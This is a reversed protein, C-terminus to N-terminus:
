LLFFFIQFDISNQHKHELTFRIKSLGKWDNSNKTYRKKVYSISRYQDTSVTEMKQHQDVYSQIIQPIQYRGLTMQIM